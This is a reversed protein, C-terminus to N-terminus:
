SFLVYAKNPRYYKKTMKDLKDGFISTSDNLSEGKELNVEMLEIRQVRKILKDNFPAIEKEAGKIMEMIKQLDKM